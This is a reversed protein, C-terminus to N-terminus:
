GRRWSGERANVRFNIDTGGEERDGSDTWWDVVDPRMISCAPDARRTTRERRPGSGM